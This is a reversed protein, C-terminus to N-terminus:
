KLVIPPKSLDLENLPKFLYNKWSTFKTASSQASGNTYWTGLYTAWFDIDQAFETPVGIVPPRYCKQGNIEYYIEVVTGQVRVGATFWTGPPTDTYDQGATTKNNSAKAFCVTGGEKSGNAYNIVNSTHGDTCSSLGGGSWLTEVIDIESVGLKADNSGDCYPKYKCLAGTSRGALYFTECWGPLAKSDNFSLKMDIQWQGTKELYGPGSELFLRAGTNTPTQQLTNDNSVVFQEGGYDATWKAGNNSTWIPPKVCDIAPPGHLIQFSYKHGSQYEFSWKSLDTELGKNGGWDCGSDVKSITLYPYKGYPWTMSVSVGGIPTSFSTDEPLFVKFYWWSGMCYDYQSDKNIVYGISPKLPQVTGQQDKWGGGKDVKLNFKTSNYITFIPKYDAPPDNM